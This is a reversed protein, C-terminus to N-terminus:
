IHILSLMCELTLGQDSINLVQQIGQFIPGHFLTGDNYFSLGQLNYTNKLDVHDNFPVEPLKHNLRIISSYHLRQLKGPNSSVQVEIEAVNGDKGETEQLNLSYKNALTEDFKVGNLVNFNKCSSFSFRNYKQLCADIMWSIAHVAPLVSTGGIKHDHFVPSKDLNIKRSVVWNPSVNVPQQPGGM